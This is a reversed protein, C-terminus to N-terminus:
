LNFKLYNKELLYILMKARADAETLAFRQILLEYNAIIGYSWERYEIFWENDENKSIYLKFRKKSKNETYDVFLPLIEGLEASTSAPYDTWASDASGFTAPRQRPLLEDKFKQGSLKGGTHWVFYSEQDVGLEKLKKALELSVVQDELKM